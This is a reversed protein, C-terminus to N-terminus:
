DRYPSSNSRTKSTNCMTNGKKCRVEFARGISEATLVVDYAEESSWGLAGRLWYLLLNM